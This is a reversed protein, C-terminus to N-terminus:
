NKIIIFFKFESFFIANKNYPTSHTANCKKYPCENLFKQQRRMSESYRSIVESNLQKKTSKLNMGCGTKTTSKM